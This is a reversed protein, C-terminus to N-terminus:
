DVVKVYLYGRAQNRNRDWASLILKHYRQIVKISSADNFYRNEEWEKKANAPVLIESTFRYSTNGTEESLDVITNIRWDGYSFEIRRIGSADEVLADVPITGGAAVDVTDATFVVSPVTHDLNDLIDDTSECATAFVILIFVAVPLLKM